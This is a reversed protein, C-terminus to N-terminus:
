LMLAQSKVRGLQDQWKIRKANKRIFFCIQRHYLLVAISFYVM